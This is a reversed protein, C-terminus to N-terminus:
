ITIVNVSGDNSDLEGDGESPAAMPMAAAHMAARM